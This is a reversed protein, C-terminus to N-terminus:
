KESALAVAMGIAIASLSSIAAGWTACSLGWRLYDAAPNWFGRARRNARWFFGLAAVAFPLGIVPLLSFLSFVFCRVSGHIIQLRTQPPAINM